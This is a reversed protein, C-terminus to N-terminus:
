SLGCDLMVRAHDSEVLFKSGTVTGVGGLFTLLAPRSPAMGSETRRPQATDM